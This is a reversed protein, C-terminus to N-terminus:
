KNALTSKYESVHFMSAGDAWFSKLMKYKKLLDSEKKGLKLNETFKGEVASRAM